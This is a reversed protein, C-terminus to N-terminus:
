EDSNGRYFSDSFKKDISSVNYEEDNIDAYNVYLKNKDIISILAKKKEELTLGNFDEDVKTLEDKTIYPVINPDNFVDNKIKNIDNNNSLIIQDIIKKNNELLECYVFSGGGNWNVDNYKSIGTQDSSIVTELRKVAKSEIYDMQEIGIYQRKMKHAVAATTGSGLFFDLVIDGEDSSSELIRHLLMEPKKGNKMKVNGERAIGAWSIDTWQDSGIKTLSEEGQIMFVKNTVFVIEGNKYLLTKKGTTTIYEHVVDRDINNNKIYKKLNDSIDRVSFINNKYKIQFKELEKESINKKDISYKTSYVDKINSINWNEYNDEPNEVFYSYNQDYDTKVRIHKYEYQKKGYILIYESVKVPKLANVKVGSESSTKLTIMSVFNEEGFIEDMLVKLYAQENYDCQVFISGSELLLDKALKLRNKMFTLWTSRNFADNYGFGDNGTNYPPDIYILKVKGEFRQLLSSLVVLNNGKIILNDTQSLKFDTKIKNKNYKKANTFVKPSLLNSIEHSGLIENYFKEERKQDEKNQGGVLYCDKYPFSLVVNDNQSIFGENSSLGIKNSFKTYSDPLFEKSNIVWLFKQKDFLTVNDIEIFFEQKIEQDNLLVKLLTTDNKIVDSILKTKLFEKDETQYKTTLLNEIRNLINDNM